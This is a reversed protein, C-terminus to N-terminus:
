LLLYYCYNSSPHTRSQMHTGVKKKASNKNKSFYTNNSTEVNKFTAYKLLINTMSM